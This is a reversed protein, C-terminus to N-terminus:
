VCFLIFQLSQLIMLLSKPKMTAACRKTCLCFNNLKSFTSCQIRITPLYHHSIEGTTPCTPLQFFRTAKTSFSKWPIFKWPLLNSNKYIELRNMGSKFPCIKRKQDFSCCIGYIPPTEKKPSKTCITVSNQKWDNTWLLNELCGTATGPSKKGRLHKEWVRQRAINIGKFLKWLCDRVMFTSTTGSSNSEFVLVKM